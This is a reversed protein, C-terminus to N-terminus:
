RKLYSTLLLVKLFEGGLFPLLGLGIAQILNGFLFYLGLTGISLQLLCILSLSLITKFTNLSAYKEFLLGTLYAQAIFGLLYGGTPGILSLVGWHGGAFVPLGLTGEALYSLLSWVAKKRGLAAGVIMVSLTQCSFPVPSFPLPISIQACIGIFLSAGIIQLVGLFEKSFSLSRSSPICDTLM